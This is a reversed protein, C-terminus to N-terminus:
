PLEPGVNKVVNSQIELSLKAIRPVDEVGMLKRKAFKQIKIEQMSNIKEVVVNPLTFNLTVGFAQQM